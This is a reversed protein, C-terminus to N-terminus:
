HCTEKSSTSPPKQMIRQITMWQWNQSVPIHFIMHFSLKGGVNELLWKRGKGIVIENWSVLIHLIICSLKVVESM